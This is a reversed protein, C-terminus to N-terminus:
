KLPIKFSNSFLKSFSNPMSTTFFGCYNANVVGWGLRVGLPGENLLQMGVRLM